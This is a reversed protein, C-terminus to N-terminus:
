GDPGCRRRRRQFVTVTSAKAPSRFVHHLPDPDNGMMVEPCHCDVVVYGDPDIHKYVYRMVDVDGGARPTVWTGRLIIWDPDPPVPRGQLGGVVQLGTYFQLPLDGYTIVVVDAPRAHARLYQSLVWEPDDVPHTVEYLYGCLSLCAGGVSPFRDARRVAGAHLSDVPFQYVADTGILVLVLAVGAPRSWRLVRFTVWGLLVATLPLLGALYRFHDWPALPLYLLYVVCLAALFQV